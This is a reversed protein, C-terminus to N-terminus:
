PASSPESTQILRQKNAPHMLPSFDAITEGDRKLLWRPMHGTRNLALIFAAFDAYDEAWSTSAYITVFPTQSWAEFAQKLAANEMQPRNLNMHYPNISSRATFDFAPLPRAAEKDAPTWVGKAFPTTTKNFGFHQRLLADNIPTQQTEFDILHASEHWLIYQLASVGELGEVEIRYPGEKFSTNERMELWAKASAHFMAPNLIMTYARRDEADIIWDTIGGGLLQDIFFVRTLKQRMIKRWPAPLAAIAQTFQRQEDATLQYPKYSKAQPNMAADMQQWVNFIPGPIDAVREELPKSAQVPLLTGLSKRDEISFGGVANSQGNQSCATWGGLLVLLLAFIYLRFGKGAM